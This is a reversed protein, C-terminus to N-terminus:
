RSLVKYRETEGNRYAAAEDVIVLDIDKRDMLEKKLIKLGDHNIVYIDANQALLERRKDSSGHLILATRHMCVSFIEDLWVMELTSLPAVILVKKVKGLTM